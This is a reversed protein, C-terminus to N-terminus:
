CIIKWFKKLVLHPFVFLGTAIRLLLLLAFLDPRMILKKKEPNVLFVFLLRYLLGLQKKIDKDNVGWKKIYGEFGRSYYYKKRLYSSISDESEDHYIGVFNPSHMIGRTKCFESLEDKKVPASPPRARLVECDGLNRLRKDLDWDEGSGSQFVKEDFGEVSRFSSM